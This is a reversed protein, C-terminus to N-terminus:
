RRGGFMWSLLLAAVALGGSALGLVHSPTERNAQYCPNLGDASLLNGSNASGISPLYTLGSLLSLPLGAIMTNVGDMFTPVGYGAPCAAAPASMVTLSQCTAPMPDCTRGCGCDFGGAALPIPVFNADGLGRRSTRRILM